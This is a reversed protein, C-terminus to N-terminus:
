GEGLRRRVQALIRQIQAARRGKPMNKEALEVHKLAEDALGMQSAMDALYAHAFSDRPEAQVALRFNQLASESDGRRNYAKAWDCYAWSEWRRNRAQRSAQIARQFLRDAEGPIGEEEEMLAWGQLTPANKPDAQAAREFLERARPVNREKKEMLAWAQRAHADQPDAQTAREFLERARPVNREEKEMLAWAHFVPAHKPDAEAAREFLERARPVNREEKEMLAWAQWTVADQPDAQAAREFLERAREVDGQEKEMLAWVQLTPAHRPDAQAAREFLERAREVDGQEKEMLAWAQLTLADQPDARTAREFLERAREVDGQEKEMLAWAQFVPANKPEAELAREFLERARAVNGKDKEILALGQLARVDHPDAQVARELLERARAVDGQEKEMLAWAHLTPVNKSDAELARKFLERARAVNGQEKEMLAWAHLTPVDKPDALIVQEFLERARAINGQEEEMLAQAQLTWADGPVAQTALEFLEQARAVNGEDKEMLAWAHLIPADQPDALTAQEFMRRAETLDGARVAALPLISLLKYDKQDSSVSKLRVAAKFVDAYAASHRRPNDDTLIAFLVQAIVPHRARIRGDSEELEALEGALPKLVKDDVDSGPIEMMEALLPCTVYAEWQHVACAYRLAKQLFAGESWAGIRNVVSQLIERFPGGGKAAILAALLQRETSGVFLRIQEKRPKGTLTGLENVAALKDIIREAEARSLRESRLTWDVPLTPVRGLEIRAHNWENKRAALVFRVPLNNSQCHNILAPLNGKSDPQGDLQHAYDAVVTVTREAYPAITEWPLYDGSGRWIVTQGQRALDAALRMLLTTKGDGGAALVLAVCTESQTALWQLIDDQSDRCADHEYYINGWTPRAANYFSKASKIPDIVRQGAEEIEQWTLLHAIGTLAPPPACPSRAPPRLQERIFKVANAVEVTTAALDRTAQRYEKWIENEWGQSTESANLGNLFVKIIDRGAVDGAIKVSDGQINVGGTQQIWKYFRYMVRQSGSPPRVASAEVQQRLLEVAEQLFIKSREATGATIEFAQSDLEQRFEPSSWLCKRLEDV